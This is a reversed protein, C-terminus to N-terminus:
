LAMTVSLNNNTHFFNQLYLLDLLFSENSSSILNTAVDTIKNTFILNLLHHLRGDHLGTQDTALITIGSLQLCGQLQDELIMCTWTEKLSACNSYTDETSCSNAPIFAFFTIVENDNEEEVTLLVFLLNLSHSLSFQAFMNADNGQSLCKM